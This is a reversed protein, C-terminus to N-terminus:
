YSTMLLTYSTYSGDVKVRMDDLELRRMANEFTTTFMKPSVTDSQRVGRKVGTIINKYFPLLGTTFNSYLERLVKIYQTPVGEKNLVEMVAETEVLDFAKNPFLGLSVTNMQYIM